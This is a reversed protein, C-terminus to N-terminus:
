FNGSDEFRAGSPSTSDEEDLSAADRKGLTCCCACCVCVCVCVYVCVCVCVYMCVCARVVLDSRQVAGRYLVLCATLDPDNELIVTDRCLVSRIRVCVCVCVCESVYM